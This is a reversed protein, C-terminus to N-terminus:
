DCETCAPRRAAELYHNDGEDIYTSILQMGTEALLLKYEAEGLSVSRQGTLMDEWECKQFPASFLFYGGPKLARGVKNILNRQDDESLLFMLGIAVIGDFTRNFFTSNQVTECAVHASGFRQRFMSALTASADIGFVTLGNEFLTSSVPFGSGCGIDLVEGGSRLGNAWRRIVDRGTDSRVAAFTLAVAEWGDNQNKILM